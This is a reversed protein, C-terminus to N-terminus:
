SDPQQIHQQPVRPRRFPFIQSREHRPRPCSVRGAGCRRCLRVHHGAPPFGGLLRHPQSHEQGDPLLREGAPRVGGHPAVRHLPLRQRHLRSVKGGGTQEQRLGHQPAAHRARHNGSLATAGQHSRLCESQLPLCVTEPADAGQAARARPKENGRHERSLFGRRPPMEHSRGCAGCLRVAHRGAPTGLRGTLLPRTRHFPHARRASIAPQEIPACRGM